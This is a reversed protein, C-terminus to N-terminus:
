LRAIHLGGDVHVVEGTSFHFRGSALAAAVGGVDAPEGWRRVLSVGEAILKDYRGAAVATMPTRIIGPRIEFVGIGVEALRVAFLQTMMSVGAKSLCYEGRDPAVITSNMSAINVISRARRAAEGLWRRAVAQTLFFPGRLNIDMQRDFSDPTVDLLDGRVRVSVGANNVLADVDGFCGFAAAVLGAQGALDAVDGRVFGARVGLARVSDLTEAVAGDEVVDNIVVDWGDRAFALAIGRGIGQRGGTVLVCGEPM